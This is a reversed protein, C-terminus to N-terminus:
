EAAAVAADPMPARRGDELRFAVQAAVAFLVAEAAFAIAYAPAAAGFVARLADVTLTGLFGGSGFAVAQAAGWIGMRMGHREGKASGALAMMWAIAAVAYVGNTFGLLFVSVKLPWGIGVIAALALSALAVGSTACGLTTWLRLSASRRSARGKSGLTGLVAMVIMGTFVGGNQIASLSTSQGPTMAFVTGAFPELILDQFSYALMSVFIFITFRRAAPDRWTAAFAGRFPERSQALAARTGDRREVGIVAIVALLFASGCVGGAVTVLRQPSYPDLLHGVTAATVIFGAIMMLWVITAAAARRSEAVQSSLLALLSVGAAGVGMGILLYAIVALALGATRDSSAWATALAAGFGGLALLAMGALIWPTRRGTVDSGHGFGPRLLQTGYHLAVLGGPIVAPFALEVVMVRNLTSTTLIVVAGLATQVLGLRAIGFWGLKQAASMM